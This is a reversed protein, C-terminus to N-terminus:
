SRTRWVMFAFLGMAAFVIFAGVHAFPEGSARQGGYITYLGVVNIVLGGNAIGWLISPLWGETPHLKLYVGYLFISVWGILLLHTHTVLQGHDHTAAMHLGLALGLLGYIVAARFFASPAGLGM